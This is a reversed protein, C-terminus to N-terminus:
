CSIFHGRGWGPPYYKAGRRSGKVLTLQFPSSGQTHYRRRNQLKATFSKQPAFCPLVHLSSTLQQAFVNLTSQAWLWEYFLFCACLYIILQTLTKFFLLHFHSNISCIIHYVLSIGTYFFINILHWSIYYYSKDTSHYHQFLKFFCLFIPTM